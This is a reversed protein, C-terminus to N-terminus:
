SKLLKRRSLTDMGREISFSYLFMVHLVLSLGGVASRGPFNFAHLFVGFVSNAETQPETTSKTTGSIFLPSGKVNVPGRFYRSFVINRYLM